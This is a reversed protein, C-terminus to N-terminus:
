KVLLEANVPAALADLDVPAPQRLRNWEAIGLYRAHHHNWEDRKHTAAFRAAREKRKSDRLPRLETKGVGVGVVERTWTGDQGAWQLRTKDPNLTLKHRKAIDPLLVRLELLSQRDNGSISLDDAYRTYTCNHNRCWMTIDHDMGIAALNALAPSTPLGQRARKNVFMFPQTQVESPLMGAEVTDFFESLDASLTFQYGVHPLAATVPSRGPMFGHVIDRDCLAAQYANLRPLMYRLAAKHKRTPAYIVRLKGNRKRIRIIIM